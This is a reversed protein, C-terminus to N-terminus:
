GEKKRLYDALNTPNYVSPPLTPDARVTAGKMRDQVSPDLLLAMAETFEQRPGKPLALWPPSIWPQHAVGQANPAPKVALPSRFEIGASASALRGMMWDFAGDSLGSEANTGPYGGGVDAHAGPFLVQVIRPDPDWLTPTFNARQEDIAIAHYGRKIKPSLATDAFRFVDICTMTRTYEPIGLAGVTDWVAVAELPVDSILAPVPTNAVFDPLGAVLAQLQGLWDENKRLVTRRYDYWVAAGLRYAMEKDALNLKTADLLGKTVILGALARATYAGRSFGILLIKDGAAYNRSVFTYGRVIRTIIGAGLSGGLMRVLFNNSDGVGHLYKAVQFITGAGDDLVREQENALRMTGISDVGALNVFLKFVNTPEAGNDDADDSGPGNWTGDACFIITKSM